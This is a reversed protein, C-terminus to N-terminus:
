GGGRPPGEGVRGEAERRWPGQRRETLPAAGGGPVLRPPGPRERGLVLQGQAQARAPGVRGLIVPPSLSGRVSLGSPRALTHASPQVRPAHRSEAPGCGRGETGGPHVGPWGGAGLGGDGSCLHVGALAPPCATAAGLSSVALQSPGAPHGQREPSVWPSFPCFGAGQRPQGLSSRTGPRWSGEGSSAQHGTGELGLGFLDVDDTMRLSPIRPKPPPPPPPPAPGADEDTEDSPDERM